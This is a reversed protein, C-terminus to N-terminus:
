DERSVLVIHSVGGVGPGGGITHALGMRADKLQRPGAKGQLQNYLEYIMRLGTAGQPHGFSKLGGDTNVPLSGDLAFFGNDIYEKAQGRPCFGLDEYAFLENITFCDHVEALSIEKSPDDIGIQEYLKKSAVVNEEWHCFDYERLMRGMGAGSAIEVGKILIYDDRFKKAMHAPCIIAATAGDTRPCCDFLGLPWAIIPANLAQDLTIKRQFHAKPHLSGNHHNKVGIKALTEKGIGYRHFYRTAAMAYEGPSSRGYSYLFSDGTSIVNYGLDKFKEYGLTLVLDYVGASVAFAADRLTAIATGCGNEVRTIPIGEIKLARSLRFGMMGSIITGMWGAQIDKPDIGADEYAEYAADVIMDDASKDWNFGFKCCGMGIIAVKDRISEM